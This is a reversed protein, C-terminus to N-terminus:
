AVYEGWEMHALSQILPLIFIGSSIKQLVQTDCM